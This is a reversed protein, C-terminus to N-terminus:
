LVSPAPPYSGIGPVTSPQAKPAPRRGPIAGGAAGAGAGAGFGVVFGAGFGGAGGGAGGPVAAGGPAGPDDVPVPAVGPRAPVPAPAGTRDLALATGGPDLAAGDVDAPAVAVAPADVATPLAGDVDSGPGGPATAVSGAAEDDFASPANERATASIM